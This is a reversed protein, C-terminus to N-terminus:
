LLMTIAPHGSNKDKLLNINCSTHTHASFNLVGLNLFKNQNVKMVLM